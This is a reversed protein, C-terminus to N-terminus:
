DMWDGHPEMPMHGFVYDHCDAWAQRRSKRYPQRARYESQSTVASTWAYLQPDGDYIVSVSYGEDKLYAIREESPERQKADTM